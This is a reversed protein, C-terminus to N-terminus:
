EWNLSRGLPTLQIWTPGAALPIDNGDPDLFRFFGTAASREWRGEIAVGDRFVVAVGSGLVDYDPVASGAADKRGTDIVPVYVVIVNAAVLQPNAGEVATNRNAYTEEAGLVRHPTEGIFRLYGDDAESYRYNLIHASSQSVTVSLALSIHDDKGPAEGFTLWGPSPPEPADLGLVDATRLVLDYTGPRSPERFYATSGMTPHSVDGTVQRLAVVVSDQGGSHAMLAGFPAVLKPDVERASRVPGVEAPIDSQFFALLRPVGGEVLVEIVLDAHDLGVQPRANATNDIKAILVSKETDAGGSSVGTLPWLDTDTQPETTTTTEDISLTTTTAGVDALTTTTTAAEDDGGCAALALVLAVFTVIPKLM